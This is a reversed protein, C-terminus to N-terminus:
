PGSSEPLSASCQCLLYLDKCCCHVGYIKRRVSYRIGACVDLLQQQPRLDLSPAVLGLGTRAVECLLLPPEVAKHPRMCCYDM